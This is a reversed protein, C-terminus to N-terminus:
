RAKTNITGGEIEMEATADNDADRDVAAMSVTVAGSASTDDVRKDSPSAGRTPLQATEDLANAALRPMAQTVEDDADDADLSAALEAAAQELQMNFVQTATLEDEYDQELLDYGTAGADDADAFAPTEQTIEVEVAMLDRETVEDPQPMKTADIIVSLDYDDDGPLVESDLISHSRSRSPPIIDTKEIMMSDDDRGRARVPEFPLDIDLDTTAAFGFDQAVDMEGEDDFGQGTVVNADLIPNEDTPSDDSLDFDIEDGITAAEFDASAPQAVEAPEPAIPQSGFRSLLRRGFLALGGLLMVGLGAFWYLMGGGSTTTATRVVAISRPAQSAAAPAPTAAPTTTEAIYTGDELVIDGPRPATAPEDGVLEEAATEVPSLPAPEVDAATAAATTALTAGASVTTAAPTSAAAAPMAAAPTAYAEVVSSTAPAPPATDVASAAAANTDATSTAPQPQVVPASGEMSPITLWAGAILRNPDNDAFAHPNAAFIANVAPWLALQRNDIRQVIGSLTDGAQVQYRSEAGVPVADRTMRTATATRGTDARVAPAAPETRASAAPAVVTAVPDVLVTYERALRPAYPCDVVVQTALLPELVPTSGTLRITGNAVSIRARAIGPLGSDNRGPRLYVCFDELMENPGLAYAISARLPQGLPSEVKLDGLELALAPTM